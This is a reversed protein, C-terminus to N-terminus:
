MGRRSLAFLAVILVLLVMFVAIGDSIVTTLSPDAVIHFRTLKWIPQIVQDALTPVAVFGFVIALAWGVRTSRLAEMSRTESARLELGADIESALDTLGLENWGNELLERIEGSHSAERMRLRLHLIARRVAIVEATTSLAEVRHYLSRHLMYGYELLEALVQREYILNGRNPDMWPEQESLGDMSWVWLTSASTIYASYDQFLRADKPLMRKAEADGLVPVRSLIRAFDSGHRAENESATNCQERFRVLHIHPRGTWFEGLLLLPRQGLLLFALGVRPRGIVFAATHSITAAISALDDTETGSFPVLDFFFDGDTQRTTRQKVAMDHGVQLRMLQLRRIFNWKHVSQYYARTALAALGPSVEVHGFKYKFLNVGGAIFDALPTATKPGIMRFEVMLVGSGYALLVPYLTLHSSAKDELTPALVCKGLYARLYPAPLSTDDGLVRRESILFYSAQGWAELAFGHPRAKCGDDLDLRFTSRGGLSDVEIVTSGSCVASNSRWYTRGDNLMACEALGSAVLRRASGDLDIVAPELYTTYAHWIEWEQIELEM